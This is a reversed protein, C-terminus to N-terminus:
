LDPGETEGSIDAVGDGDGSGGIMGDRLETANVDPDVVGTNEGIRGCQLQSFLGPLLDEGHVGAADEQPGTFGCTPHSCASGAPDDDVDDGGGSHLDGERAHGGVDTRLM